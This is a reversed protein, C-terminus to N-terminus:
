EELERLARVVGELLQTDEETAGIEALAGAITSQLNYITSQQNAVKQDVSSNV